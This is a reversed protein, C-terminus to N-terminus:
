LAAEKKLKMIAVGVASSADAYASEGDLMAEAQTFRKGNIAQAVKAAEAHFAAHRQVCSLYSQMEGFLRKGDGRLWTGLECCDDRAITAVDMTDQRAIATRFKLKWEAHKQIAHGLDM